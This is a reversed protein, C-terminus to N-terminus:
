KRRRFLLLAAAGLGGLALTTPEPVPILLNGNWGAGPAGSIPAAPTAPSGGPNGTPNVFEGSYGILANAAVAAAYSAYNGQWGAVEFVASTGGATAAGTTITVPDYFYGAGNGSGSPAYLGIQSLSSLPTTTDTGAVWLLAVQYTGPNALTTNNGITINGSGLSNEFIITGQALASAALGVSLIATLLQKKM